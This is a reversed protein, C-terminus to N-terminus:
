SSGSPEEEKWCGGKDRERERRRNGGLNRRRKRRRMGRRERKRRRKKEKRMRRIHQRISEIVCLLSTAFEGSISNEEKFCLFIVYARYLVLIHSVTEADFTISVTPM